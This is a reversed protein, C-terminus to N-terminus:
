RRRAPTARVAGAGRDRPDAVAGRRRPRRVGPDGRDSFADLETMTSRLERLFSPFRAFAQRSTPAASPPRRRPRRRRQQHLRRRQERERALPALVADSDRRSSPSRATRARSSRWCRTRDRAAGPERARHDRRAGRRPRRPRRRPRQPDAPLPGRYPQRMINNVLDLDVAKGNSSSRCCTSARARSATPSRARAAAAARQRRGAAPDARVRRVERRDAVAPPDPLSADERFDQFGPDDIRLVVVAKGPDPPQRGRPAPEDAAPSTSRRRDVGVNAGAVRVDEGPSSSAATTSSRGCRTPATTAAPARRRDRPGRGRRRLSSRHDRAIRRMPGPARRDPDCDGTSAQRRRPVPPRDPRALRREAADRRGSLAHVPRARATSTTSSSRRAPDARARETAENYDFLNSAAPM